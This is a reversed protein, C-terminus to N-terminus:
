SPRGALGSFCTRLVFEIIEEQAYRGGAKLVLPV